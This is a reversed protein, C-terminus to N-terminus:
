LQRPVGPVANGTPRRVMNDHSLVRATGVFYSHFDEVVLNYTQEDDAGNKVGEIAVAGSVGHLKQGAQLQRARVWGQGIVWFPHGGSARITEGGLDIEVLPAAPRLTTRIVPKYALEGTEPHQALVLDGIRLKDVPAPGSTTWILTGAALCDLKRNSSSSSDPRSPGYGVVRYLPPPPPPAIVVYSEQQVKRVTPKQNILFVENEENWWNWWEEHFTSFPLDTVARLVDTVRLNRHLISVNQQRLIQDAAVIKSVALQGSLARSRAKGVPNTAAANLKTRSELGEVRSETERQYFLRVVVDGDRERFANYQGQIPSTLGSLLYPVFADRPQKKLQAIAERYVAALERSLREAVPTSKALEEATPYRPGEKELVYAEAVEMPVLLAISTALRALSEAAEPHPVRGITSVIPVLVDAIKHEISGPQQDIKDLYLLLETELASVAGPDALASLRRLLKTREQADVAKGGTKNSLGTVLERIQPRYKRAAEERADLHTDAATRERRSVWEGQLKEYGLRTRAAAHDPDFELMGRLHAIEQSPLGQKQCWNALELHGEVSAVMNRRLEQYQERKEREAAPQGADEFKVWAGGQRVFGAHGRAVLLDPQSALLATLRTQQEALNGEWGPRLAERVRAATALPEAASIMAGSAWCCCWCVFLLRGLTPLHNM